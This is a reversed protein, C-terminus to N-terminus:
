KLSLTMFVVSNPRSNVLKRFEDKAEVEKPVLGPLVLKKM